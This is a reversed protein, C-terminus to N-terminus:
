RGITNVCRGPACLGPMAACEDVDGYIDSGSGPVGGDVLVGTIGGSGPRGGPRGGLNTQTCLEMREPSGPVPCLECEPGWAMGLTCCCQARYIM